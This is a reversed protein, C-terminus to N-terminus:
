FILYWFMLVYLRMTVFFFLVMFKEPVIRRIPLELKSGDGWRGKMGLDVLLLAETVGLYKM